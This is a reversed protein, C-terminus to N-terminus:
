KQLTEFAKLYIRRLHEETLRAPRVPVGAERSLEPVWSIRMVEDKLAERNRYTDKFGFREGYERIADNINYIM